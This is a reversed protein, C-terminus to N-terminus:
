RISRRYVRRRNAKADQIRDKYIRKRLGQSPSIWRRVGHKIEYDGLGPVNIRKGENESPGDCRTM